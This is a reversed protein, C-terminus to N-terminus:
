AVSKEREFPSKTIMPKADSITTPGPAEYKFHSVWIM